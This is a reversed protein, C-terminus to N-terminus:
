RRSRHAKLLADIKNFTNRDFTTGLLSPMSAEADAYWLAEQQATPRNEVLGYRLMTNLAETELRQIAIDMDAGIKRSSQVLREKYQAPVARWATRNLVIGGMAPALNMSLMYKATGFLQLSGVLVPSQYLADVMGGSLAIVMDNNGTPVMQYGMAKFAQMLQPEDPSTAVKQRKLDAPVFVPNRSFIKVWGVKSWALTFFGKEDIKAELEPKLNELVLDLEQENRILFPSSLTMIEPTLANLGFSTIVAGQIENLRLKRVEDAEDGLIGNHYIRLEVAGGTITRWEDSMQNLAAGWPTAEPVLSAIKLVVPKKPQAYVPTVACFILVTLMAFCVPVPRTFQKM